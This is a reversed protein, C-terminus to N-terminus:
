KTKSKNKIEKYKNAQNAVNSQKTSNVKAITRERLKATRQSSSMEEIVLSSYLIGAILIFIFLFLLFYLNRNKIM